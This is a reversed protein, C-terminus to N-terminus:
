ALIATREIARLKASRSRPNLEREEEGAIVPRKTLIKWGPNEAQARFAQKVMRDELSHFSIIALVGGPALLSLGSSIGQKLSDLEDNVAIRLAQFTRTAPHPHKFRTSAPYAEVLLNALDLTSEFKKSRRREVILKAIRRSLREEGYQFLMDALEREPLSNVLDAATTSGHGNMRMDLPGDVRFSFGRKPDDLQLSSVGIDLLIGDVQRITLPKLLATLQSFNGHLCTAREGLLSRSYTLAVLDQDVGILRDAGAQIIAQAHGAYGLTGDVFTGSRAPNLLTIVESLLVPQHHLTLMPSAAQQGM